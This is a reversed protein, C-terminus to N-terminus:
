SKRPDKKRGSTSCRPKLGEICDMEFAKKWRCYTSHSVLYDRVVRAASLGMDRMDYQVGAIVLLRQAAVLLPDFDRM